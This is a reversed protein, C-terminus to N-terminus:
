LLEQQLQKKRYSNAFRHAEDRLKVLLRDKEDYILNYVKIVYWDSDLVYLQEKEWKIKSGSRRAGGKGISIFQTNIAVENTLVWRRFLDVVINLQEKWWDIIFLSPLPSTTKKDFRRILVQRISAYDDGWIDKIRYRRYWKPYLIGWEMCSLWGSAWDWSWHSIDLCEIRYPYCLLNYSEKINQLLSDVINHDSFATSAVYSDIYHRYHQEISSTISKTLRMWSSIYTYTKSEDWWLHHLERMPGFELELSLLLQEYDTDKTFETFRMVDVLRGQVFSMVVIIWLTEVNVIRAWTGTIQDDIIVTQQQTLQKLSYYIDRLKAAREFHQKEIAENISNKLSYMISTDNWAFFDQILKLDRAYLQQYHEIVPDNWMM